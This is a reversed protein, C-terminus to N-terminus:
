AAPAQAPAPPAPPIERPPAEVTTATPTAKAGADAWGPYDDPCLQLTTSSVPQINAATGNFESRGVAQSVQYWTEGEAIPRGCQDCTIVVTTTSEIM